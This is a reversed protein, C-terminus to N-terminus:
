LESRNAQTNAIPQPDYTDGDDIYAGDTGISVDLMAPLVNGQTDGVNTGLGTNTTTPQTTMPPLECAIATADRVRPDALKVPGSVQVGPPHPDRTNHNGGRMFNRCNNSTPCPTELVHQFTAAIRSLEDRSVNLLYNTSIGRVIKIDFDPGNEKIELSALPIECTDNLILM